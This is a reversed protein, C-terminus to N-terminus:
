PILTTLVRRAGPAIASIHKAMAIGDPTKKAARVQRYKLETRRTLEGILLETCTKLLGNIAGIQNLQTESHHRGDINNYCTLESAEEQAVDTLYGFSYRDRYVEASASFRNLLEDDGHRLRAILVFADSTSFSEVQSKTL